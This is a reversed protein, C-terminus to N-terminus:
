AAPPQLYQRMEALLHELQPRLASFAAVLPAAAATKSLQELAFFDSVLRDAGFIPLYGKIGHMRRSAARVDGAALEQGIAPVDESLSLLATRLIMSLAEPSGLMDIAREVDLASAPPAPPVSTPNMPTEAFTGRRAGADAQPGGVWFKL